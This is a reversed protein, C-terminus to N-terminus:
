FGLALSLRQTEANPFTHLFIYQTQSCKQAPFSLAGSSHAWMFINFLATVRARRVSLAPSFFFILSFFFDPLSPFHFILIFGANTLGPQPQQSLCSGARCRESKGAQGLFTTEKACIPTSSNPIKVKKM